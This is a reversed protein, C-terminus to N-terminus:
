AGLGVMMKDGLGFWFVEKRFGNELVIMGAM